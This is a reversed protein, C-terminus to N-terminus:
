PILGTSDHLWYSILQQSNDFPFETRKGQHYPHRSTTSGVAMSGALKWEVRTGHRSSFSWNTQCCRRDNWICITSHSAVVFSSSIHFRSVKFKFCPRRELAIPERFPCSVQLEKFASHRYRPWWSNPWIKEHILSIPWPRNSTTRKTTLTWSSNELLWPWRGSPM